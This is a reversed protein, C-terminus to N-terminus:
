IEWHFVGLAHQEACVGREDDEMLLAFEPM